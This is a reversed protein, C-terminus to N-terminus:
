KLIEYNYKYKFNYQKVVRYNYLQIIYWICYSTLVPGTSLLIYPM